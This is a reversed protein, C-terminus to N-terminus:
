EFWSIIVLPSGCEFRFSVGTLWDGAPILVRGGGSEHCAKIAQAIADTSKRKETDEWKCPVAGYDVINFTRDAFVPRKLQPMEFPAEIPAIAAPVEPEAVRVSVHGGESLLDALRGERFAAYRERNIRSTGVFRENLIEWVTRGCPSRVLTGDVDFAVLRIGSPAAGRGSM